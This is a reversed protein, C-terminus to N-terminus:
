CVYMRQSHGGKVPFVWGWLGAAIERTTLPNQEDSDRRLMEVIKLLRLKRGTDQKM